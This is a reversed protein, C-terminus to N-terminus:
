LNLDEAIKDAAVIEPITVVKAGAKKLKSVLSLNECRSHVEIKPNLEKATLTILINSETKPLTIIIKSAKEINAKKLTEENLADGELIIYRKKKLIGIIKPDSDIILFPKKKLALVRAIEEGVRGGGIIIIHKKMEKMLLLYYRAKLYKKLNGDLLMDAISWLVWWVLFVGVISLFVEILREPITSSDDFIFALTQVTRYLADKFTEEAILRFSITGIIFLIVIVWFFIKLRKPFEDVEKSM